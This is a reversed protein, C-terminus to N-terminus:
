RAADSSREIRVSVSNVPQFGRLDHTANVPELVPVRDRVVVVALWVLAVSFAIAVPLPVRVRSRMLIRWWPRPQGFVRQELAGPANPVQWEHLLHKLRSDNGPEM